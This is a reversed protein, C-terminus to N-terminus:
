NSHDDVLSIALNLTCCEVLLLGQRLIINPQGLLNM